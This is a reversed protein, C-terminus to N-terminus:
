GKEKIFEQYLQDFDDEPISALTEASMKYERWIWEEFLM